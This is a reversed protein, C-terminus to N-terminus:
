THSEINSLRQQLTAIQEELKAVKTTLEGLQRLEMWAFEFTDKKEVNQTGDPHTTKESFTVVLNHPTLVTQLIPYIKGDPTAWCPPDNPDCGLSLNFTTFSNVVSSQTTSHEFYASQAALKNTINVDGTLQIQNKDAAIPGLDLKEANKIFFTNRGLWNAWAGFLFEPGLHVVFRGTTKAANIEVNDGQIEVGRKYGRGRNIILKDDQGHSLAINGGGSRDQQERNTLVLDHAFVTLTEAETGLKNGVLAIPTIAGGYMRGTFSADGEVVVKDEELKIDATM